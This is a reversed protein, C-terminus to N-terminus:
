VSLEFVRDFKGHELADTLAKDYKAIKDTSQKRQEILAKSFTESATNGDKDYTVTDPNELKRSEKRLADLKSVVNVVANVRRDQENQVLINVVGDKVSPKLEVLKEAVAEKITFSQSM